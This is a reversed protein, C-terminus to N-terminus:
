GNEFYEEWAKLDAENLELIVNDTGQDFVYESYGIEGVVICDRTAPGLNIPALEADFGSVDNNYLIWDGYEHAGWPEVYIACEGAGTIRNNKVVAGSVRKAFIAAYPEKCSPSHFTNHSILIDHQVGEDPHGSPNWIEIGAFNHGPFMRFNNHTFIFTSPELGVGKSQVLYIGGNTDYTECRTVKVTSGSLDSLEIPVGGSKEFVCDKITVDDIGPFRQFTWALNMGNFNGDAESEAGTMRINKVVIECDGGLAHFLSSLATIDGDAWYAQYPESPQPDSVQLTLDELGLYDTPNWFWLLKSRKNLNIPHTGLAFGETDSKRVAEIITKDMGAGKLDGNFGEVFITRSVYFHGKSFQVTGGPAVNQLAWEISDADTVGTTDGSPNVVIKHDRVPSHAM